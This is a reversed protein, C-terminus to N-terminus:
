VSGNCPIILHARDLHTLFKHLPCSTVFPCHQKDKFRGTITSRFAWIARSNTLSDVTDAVKGSTVTSIPKNRAELGSM